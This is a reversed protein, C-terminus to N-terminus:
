EGFLDDLAAEIDHGFEGDLDNLLGAFEEHEAQHDYQDMEDLLLEKIEQATQLTYVRVLGLPIENGFAISLILAENASVSWISFDDSEQLSQKFRRAQGEDRLVDAIEATASFSGSVLAALSIAQGKSIDGQWHILRGGRGTMLVCRGEVKVLLEELLHEIQESAKPSISYIPRQGWDRDDGNDSDKDGIPDGISDAVSREDIRRLGEMLLGSWGDTVTRAPPLVGMELTFVGEEWTLLEYIAEAGVLSDVEAHMIEGGSFYIYGARGQHNVQLRAQHREVSNVQVITPLSLTRLSGRVINRHNNELLRNVTAVLTRLNVPKEMFERAGLRLAEVVTEKTGYATLIAVIVSPDYGKLARLVELGNMGPMQLDVLVLDFKEEQYLSIAESGNAAGRVDFGKLDLMQVCSEVVHPEDDVVLIRKTM